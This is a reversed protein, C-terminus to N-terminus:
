ALSLPNIEFAATMGDAADADAEERLMQAIFAILPACKPSDVMKLVTHARWRDQIRQIPAADTRVFLVLKEEERGKLYKLIEDRHRQAREFVRSAEKGEVLIRDMQTFPPYLDQKRRRFEENFFARYDQRVAQAIAYHEPKYTQIVVRGKENGRGARGAVQVILQYTREPSRYDPLNLSMDALVAGVLTVSPFDLGKAIMQTGILIQAEGSRFRSLIEAHANRGSTTDVDMRLVGIGPFRRRVEEEVKQTGIGVAKIYPSSCSPCTEPMERVSGCYHCHLKRDTAHYTMSVDCRGCKIAEGCKRCSIFPAYGRRNIFLMAQNGDRVCKTLEEELIKSFIGRNGRRLEERMDALLIEPLPRGFVRSPMEVLVYDGRRAMAYSYISPTASALVLIGGERLIRSRAVARADYQPYHDSIYTSEHEEDVIVLGLKGAPAFVASRAGIVIRAQGSRIRRWEDFREGPTLRSHLVAMDDGFRSSFWSIMQPTLVIEPVLILAQKGSSVCERVLRIFVETKGSGTVGHLLFVKDTRRGALAPVMEDVAEQQEPTLPPDQVAPAQGYAVPRRLVEREFSRIAGCNELAQVAERWNGALPRIESVPHPAGDGLATLILKKRPSRKVKELWTEMEEVPFSLQFCKETKIKVKGARMQPPIMLRLAECLPCKTQERIERAAEILSPLLVPYPELPAIIEKIKGPDYEPDEKLSLVYGEKERFGFPVRVRSGVGICGEFEEPVRYTFTRDVKETAIDVIVDAFKMNRRM